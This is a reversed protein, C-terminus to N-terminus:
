EGTDNITTTAKVIRMEWAEVDLRYSHPQHEYPVLRGTVAVIAGPLGGTDIWRKIREREKGRLSVRIIAPHAATATARVSVLVNVIEHRADDRIGDHVVRGTISVTCTDVASM